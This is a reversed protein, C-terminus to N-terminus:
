TADMGFPVAADSIAFETRQGDARAVMTAAQTRNRVRLKRYIIRLHTKVTSESLFLRRGVERDSLGSIVLRLIEAQRDTLARDGLVKSPAAGNSFGLRTLLGRAVRPNLMAEGNAVRRVGSLLHQPEIDKIVYGVAGAELIRVAEEVNQCHTLALINADPCKTRIMRITQLGDPMQPEIIVVDPTCGSALRAADDGTAAQGVVEIEPPRHLLRTIESRVLPQNDVILLRIHTTRARPEVQASVGGAGGRHRVGNGPRVFTRPGGGQGADGTM